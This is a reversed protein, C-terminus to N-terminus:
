QGKLEIHFQDALAHVAQEALRFQFGAVAERVAKLPMEGVLATLKKLLPESGFPNDSALIAILQELLTAVQGLDPAAHSHPTAAPQALEGLYQQISTIVVALAEKLAARALVTDEGTRLQFQLVKSAKGVEHMGLNGAVGCLKHVFADMGEDAPQDLLAIRPSYDAVFKGLYMQYQDASRWLRIADTVDLGPFAPGSPSNTVRRQLEPTVDVARRMQFLIVSIAKEVDMPKSLHDNMGANIANERDQAFAGASLAVIPLKTFRADQRMRQTAQGGNMNPMQVDMLVVDVDNPHAFLWDIAAQGDEATTVTAGEGEFILKAVELNVDSDDVVLLRVGQLRQPAAGAGSPEFATRKRLASMVADFLASASVPKNLVADALEADPHALVDERSYATALIIIPGQGGELYEHVGRAVSLGDLDPMKWDLVLVEPPQGSQKRNVVHQLAEQGGSVVAPNWGLALATTRIADRSIQSDDAILLDLDRLKRGMEIVESAWPFELIFFFESGVGPTSHAELTGGMMDELKRSISLGLGSGGYKRTTSADAQSFPKFIDAMAAESIGIGTDRVAFRLTVSVDDRRVKGVELRVYGNHTFKIANGVLNSLVQGLRTPDGVIPHIHDPPPAIAVEVDPRNPDGIMITAVSDLVDGLTFATHEVRMQNAEIKSFDLIDNLISQLTKGTQSIRRVLRKAEENLPMRELVYALGLIGNMPTRIEHSMNALFQSKSLTTAEALEKAALVLKESEKKQTVDTYTVIMHNSALPEGLVEFTKGNSYRREFQLRKRSDLSDVYSQLVEALPRDGFDGRQHKYRLFDTHFVADGRFLEPPLDLMTELLKNHLVIRHDADFVLVGFPLKDVVEHLFEYLEVLRRTQEMRERDDTLTSRSYLPLGNADRVLNADVRFPRISGDKCVFDLEFNRLTGEQKFKAFQTRVRQASSPSLFDFIPRGVFEARDYGLYDLETANVNVVVGDANLTHYGCPAQDYLDLVERTRQAVKAELDENLSRLADRAQQLEGREQQLTQQQTQISSTLRNFSAILGRIEEDGVPAIPELVRQGSSMADMSQGVRKLPQLLKRSLLLAVTVGLLTTALSIWSLARLMEEASAFAIGTPLAVVLKWDTLEIPAVSYLKEIGRRSKGIFSTEGKRINRGVENDILPLKVSAPDSSAIISEDALSVVYIENNGMVQANTLIGLFDASAIDVGGVLAGVFESRADFLPVSFTVVTQKLLRAVVPSSVYTKGTKKVQKFYERDAYSKGKRGPIEPFDGVVVGNADLVFAGASFQIPLTYRQSLYQSAYVPDRLRASDFRSALVELLQIENSVKHSVGQAYVRAASNQQDVLFERQREYLYKGALNSGGWIFVVVLLVPLVSLKIQLSQLWSKPRSMQDLNM